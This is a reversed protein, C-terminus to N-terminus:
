YEMLKANGDRSLYMNLMKYNKQNTQESTLLLFLAYLSNNQPFVIM